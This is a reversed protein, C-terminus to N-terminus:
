GPGGRLNRSKPYIVKGGGDGRNGSGYQRIVSSLLASLSHIPKVKLTGLHRLIEDQLGLPQQFLSNWEFYDLDQLCVQLVPLGSRIFVLVAGTEVMAKRACLVALLERFRAIGWRDASRSDSWGELPLRTGQPSGGPGLGALTGEIGQPIPTQQRAGTTCCTNVTRSKAVVLSQLHPKLGQSKSNM